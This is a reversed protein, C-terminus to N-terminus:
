RVAKSSALLAQYEPRRPADIESPALGAKRAAELTRASDAARGAKQYTLALYYSTLPAPRLKISEEIDRIAEPLRGLRMLIVGRTGLRDADSGNDRILGDILAYGEAPKGLTEGLIWALNNRAIANTPQVDLAARYLAAEDDYREQVHRLIGAMILLDPVKPERAIAEDIAVAASDIVARKQAPSTAVMMLAQAGEIIEARSGKATAIRALRFADDHRGERAAIKAPAWSLAPDKAALRDAVRTAVASASKDLAFLALFAELGLATASPGDGRDLYARELAAAVEGPPTEERILLVRLRAERRDDPTIAHWRDLQKRALSFEHNMLLLEVYTAIAAPDFERGAGTAALKIARDLQKEGVLLRILYDRAGRAIPHDANLDGLLEELPAIAAKRREPDPCRVLVYARVLRAEPDASEPELSEWAKQWEAQSRANQALLASLQRALEVRKPALELARRLRDAAEANRGASRSVGAAAVLVDPDDPYSKLAAAIARESGARDGVVGLCGAELVEPKRTKVNAKITEITSAFAATRGYRVQFRLLDLWAAENGKSDEARARLLSEAEAIKGAAALTEARVARAEPLDARASAGVLTEVSRSDGVQRAAQALLRELQADAPHDRRLAALDDVRRHRVLLAVLRQLGIGLGRDWARRYEAAAEDVKGLGELFQGHLLIVSPADPAVRRIDELIKAAQATRPDAARASADKTKDSDRLIEIVQALRGVIEQTGTISRLSDVAARVQADDDSALALELLALRPQLSEPALLAWEEFTSRAAAADGQAALLRGLEEQVSARDSPTLGAPDRALRMRAERGRGLGTLLRGEAIRISARDGAAAPAAAAELAALAADAKGQRELISAYAVWTAADRPASRTAAELRATAGAVDGALIQRDVQIMTVGPSNPAVAAADALAADAETWSRSAVPLRAQRRILAGALAARLSPDASAAQCERRLYAVADDSRQAELLRAVALKPAPDGPSAAAAKRYDELADKPNWSAERCRGLVQLMIPRLSDGSKEVVKDLRSIAELPRGMKEDLMARLLVARPETENGILRSYQAVLPSAETVRDMQLLVYALWWSMDADAGGISALGARWGEIADDPRREALDIMGRALRAPLSERAEAPIADLHARAAKLDGSRSASESAALRVVVDAPALAVAEALEASARSKDGSREYYRARALRVGVAKPDAKLMADLVVAAKADNKLRSHLLDVLRESAVADSPNIRLAAEYFSAAERSGEADGAPTRGEVAMGLLRQGAGDSPDIRVMERAVAEASRYLVRSAVLEPADKAAPGNSIVDSYRIYLEALRRRTAQRGPGNPDLRLLRDNWKAAELLQDGGRAAEALIRAKLEIAPVDEPSAGLFHDLHRLATDARGEALAHEAQALASKRLRASQTVKLWVGLALIAIFVISTFILAKPNLGLRRSKATSVTM